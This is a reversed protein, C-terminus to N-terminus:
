EVSGAPVSDIPNLAGGKSAVSAFREASRVRLEGELWLTEIMGKEKEQVKISRDKVRELAAEWAQDYPCVVYREQLGTLSSCGAQLILVALVSFFCRM